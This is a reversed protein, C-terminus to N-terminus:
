FEEEEKEDAVVPLQVIASSTSPAKVNINWKPSYKGWIRLNSNSDLESASTSATVLTLGDESLCISTVKATVAATSATASSALKSNHHAIHVSDAKLTGTKIDYFEISNEDTGILISSDDSSLRLCTSWVKVTNDIWIIENINSSGSTTKTRQHENSKSKLNRNANSDGNNSSLSLSSKSFVPSCQGRLINTCAGSVFDWIRVTKDQSGSIITSKDRTLCVAYIAHVHGGLSKVCILSSVELVRV